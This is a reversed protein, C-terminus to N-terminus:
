EAGGVIAAIARVDAKPERKETLLGNCEQMTDTLQTYCFGALGSEPGVSGLLERLKAILANEGSVTGYGPWVDARDALNLGGFESLVVPIEVAEGSTADSLYILRGGTRGRRVTAEVAHAGYRRDLAQSDHTYDHIGLVDGAVFEWGDNGVVLRTPDLAKILSYVGLVAARQSPDHPLQPLGWSENFAVWTIISPHNVDREVIALWERVTRALATPSFKYAAPADAWVVLGLRDCWALFRPDCANQHARIGNFGLEKILQAEQRLAEGSPSALHTHPWFSQELVLRLFYPRGNLLIDPGHTAVTRLGLYSMVVDCTGAPTLLRVQADLLTPSEPSWQLTEPEIALGDQALYVTTRLIPGTQHTSLALRQGEHTIEIEIQADIPVDGDLRVEVDIAAVDITPRWTLSAIRTAPVDELWVTRWIGSTRSYWIAHPEPQWDQKGRPQELDRPDDEARVVVVNDEAPDLVHTVDASFRTQGGEHDLVHQGNVWVSARYDVAEFHLMVRRDKAVAARFIRRYWSVSGRAEPQVHAVGSWESEPPYPVAITLDFPEARRWWADRLGINDRDFAFSWHGDLTTWAERRLQPRPHETDIM